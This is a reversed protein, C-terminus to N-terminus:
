GGCVVEEIGTTRLIHSRSWCRLMVLTDPYLNRSSWGLSVPGVGQVPGLVRHQLPGHQRRQPESSNSFSQTLWEAFIM